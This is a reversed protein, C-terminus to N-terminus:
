HSCNRLKLVKIFIHCISMLKYVVYGKVYVQCKLTGSFLKMYLEHRVLVILCSLHDSQRSIEEHGSIEVASVM